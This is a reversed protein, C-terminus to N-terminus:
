IIQAFVYCMIHSENHYNLQRKHTGVKEAREGELASQGTRESARRARERRERM